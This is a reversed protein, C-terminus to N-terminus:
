TGEGTGADGASDLAALDTLWSGRNLEGVLAQLYGSIRGDPCKKAVGGLWRAVQEVVDELDKKLDCARQYEVAGRQEAMRLRHELNAVKAQREDHLAQAHLESDDM